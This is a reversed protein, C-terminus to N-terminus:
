FNKLKWKKDSRYRLEDRFFDKDVILLDPLSRKVAEFIEQQERPNNSKCINAKTKMILHKKLVELPANCRLLTM